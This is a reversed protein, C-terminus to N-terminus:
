KNKNNGAAVGLIFVQRCHIIGVKGKVPEAINGPDCPDRRVIGSIVGIVM